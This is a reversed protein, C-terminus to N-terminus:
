LSYHQCTKLLLCPPHLQHSVTNTPFHIPFPFFCYFQVGVANSKTQKCPNVPGFHLCKRFETLYLCKIHKFNQLPLFYSVQIKYQGGSQKLAVFCPWPFNKHKKNQKARNAKIAIETKFTNTTNSGKQLQAPLFYPVKEM